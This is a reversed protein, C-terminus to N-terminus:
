DRYYRIEGILLQGFNYSHKEVIAVVRGDRCEWRLHVNNGIIRINDPEGVAKVFADAHAYLHGSRLYTGPAAKSAKTIWDDIPPRKPIAPAVLAKLVLLIIIGLVVKNLTLWPKRPPSSTDSQPNSPM